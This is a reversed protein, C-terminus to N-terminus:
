LVNCCRCYRRRPPGAPINPPTAPAFYAHVMVNPLHQKFKKIGGRSIQQCDYLEVRELTRCERLYGLSHDTILPCNDLDLIKLKDNMCLGMALQKIGDDTILECHSLGLEVVNPCGTALHGLTNDTVQSCDELDMRELNHCNKALAHFGADTLHHCSSVELDKLLRCGHALHQLTRDTILSCQSLCLYELLVCGEAIYTASQDTLHLNLHLSFDFRHLVFSLQIIQIVIEDLQALCSHFNLVRLEPCNKAIQKVGDDTILTCGKCILATLNPCGHALASLGNDGVHHCWSVNLKSLFPCGDSLAKLGDDTTQSVCDLNLLRLRKCYRGLNTCTRDTLRKCRDLNLDEIFNCKKAFTRFVSYYILMCNSSTCDLAGDQVGECGRLSLKKLFGGCRKALNEVVNGKVDKQFTFLDVHQWNSGDLALTYWNKCVQACRCLSVIDLYSFV